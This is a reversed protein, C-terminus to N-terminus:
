LNRGLSKLKKYLINRNSCKKRYKKNSTNFEQKINDFIRWFCSRDKNNSTKLSNMTNDKTGDMWYADNVIYLTNDGTQKKYIKLAKEYKNRDKIDFNTLVREM